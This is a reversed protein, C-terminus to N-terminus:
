IADFKLNEHVVTNLRPGRFIVGRREASLLFTESQGAAEMKYGSFPPVMNGM